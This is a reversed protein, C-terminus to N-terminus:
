LMYAVRGTPLPALPSVPTSTPFASVIADAIADVAASTQPWTAVREIAPQSTRDTTDFQGYMDWQGDADIRGLRYQRQGM